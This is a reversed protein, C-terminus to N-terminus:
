ELSPRQYLDIVEHCYTGNFPEIFVKRTPWEILLSREAKLRQFVQIVWEAKLSTDGEIAAVKWNFDNAFNSAEFATGHVLCLEHYRVFM